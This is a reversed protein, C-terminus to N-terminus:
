QVRLAGTPCFSTKYKKDISSLYSEISDHISSLDDYIRQYEDDYWDQFEKSDHDQPVDEGYEYILGNMDDLESLSDSVNFDTLGADQMQGELAVFDQMIESAKDDGKVIADMNMHMEHRLSCLKSILEAQEESMGNEIAIQENEANRRAASERRYNYQGKSLYAM